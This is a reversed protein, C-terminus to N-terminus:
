SEAQEGPAAAISDAGADSPPPVDSLSVPLVTPLPLDAREVHPLQVLTSTITVNLMGDVREAYWDSFQQAGSAFWGGGVSVFVVWAFLVGAATEVASLTWDGRTATM